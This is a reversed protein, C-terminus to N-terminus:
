RLFGLGGCAPIDPQCEIHAENREHRSERADVMGHDECAARQDEDGDRQEEELEPAKVAAVGGSGELEVDCAQKIQQDADEDAGTQPKVPAARKVDFDREFRVDM